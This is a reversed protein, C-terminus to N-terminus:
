VKLFTNVGLPLDSFIGTFGQMNQSMALILQVEKQNQVKLSFWQFDYIAAAFEDIRETIRNGMWCYAFLQICYIPAFFLVLPSINITLSTFLLCLIFSLSTFEMLFSFKLLEQVEHQYEVAKCSREVIKKLQDAEFSENSSPLRKVHLILSDVEWCSHNMLVLNTVFYGILYAVNLEFLAQYFYNLFWNLSSGEDLPLFVIYLKYPLSNESKDSFLVITFYVICSVM